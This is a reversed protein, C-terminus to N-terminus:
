FQDLGSGTDPATEINRGMLVEISLAPRNQGVKAQENSRKSLVDIMVKWNRSSQRFVASPRRQQGDDQNKPTNEKESLPKGNERESHQEEEQQKSRGG